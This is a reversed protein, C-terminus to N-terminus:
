CFQYIDEEVVMAVQDLLALDRPRQLQHVELHRALVGCQRFAEASELPPLLGACYLHQVLLVMALSPPLVQFRVEPGSQLVYLRRLPLGTTQFREEAPCVRRDQAPYLLPLANPDRGLAGLSQPSLRLRAFGPFILPSKWHRATNATPVAIFDDAVVRHGRAHLLAAMTSKGEGSHGLFGVASWTEAGDQLAAASAHLVLYGRQHLVIALVPGLVFARLTDDSVGPVAEIEVERGSRLTFRAVNPWMLVATERTVCFEGDKSCAVLAEAACRKRITLDAGSEAAAGEPLSRLEPLLLSSEITLGYATHFFPM